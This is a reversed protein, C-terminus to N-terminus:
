DVASGFYFGVITGALIYLEDPVEIAMIKFAIIALVVLLALSARIPHINGM